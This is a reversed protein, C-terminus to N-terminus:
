ADKQRETKSIVQSSVSFMPLGDLPSLQGTDVVGRVLLAIRIEYREGDAGTVAVITAPAEKVSFQVTAAM